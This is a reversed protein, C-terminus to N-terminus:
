VSQLKHQAVESSVTVADTANNNKYQFRGYRAKPQPLEMIESLSLSSGGTTNTRVLVISGEGTAPWNTDDDSWQVIIELDYGDTAGGTIAWQAVNRVAQPSTNAGLDFSSGNTSSGAACSLSSDVSALAGLQFGGTTM